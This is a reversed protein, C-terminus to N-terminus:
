KQSRNLCGAPHSGSQMPPLGAVGGGGGGSGAGGEMGFLFWPKTTALDSGLAKPSLRHGPGWQPTEVPCPPELMADGGAAAPM